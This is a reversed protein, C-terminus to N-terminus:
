IYFIKYYIFCIFHKIHSKYLLYLSYYCLKGFSRTVINNDAVIGFSIFVKHLLYMFSGICTSISSCFLLLLYSIDLFIYHLHFPYSLVKLLYLLLLFGLYNYSIKCYLVFPLHPKYHAPLDSTYKYLFNM